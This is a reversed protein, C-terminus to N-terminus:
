NIVLIEGQLWRRYRWLGALKFKERIGKVGRLRKGILEVYGAIDSVSLEGDDDDDDIWRMWGAASCRFEFLRPILFIPFIAM